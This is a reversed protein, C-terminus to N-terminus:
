KVERIHSNFDCMEASKDDRWQLFRPHRLSGKKKDIIGNALVEFVRKEKIYKDANKKLDEMIEETLGKCDGVRILEGDKYVGFTIGGCWGKFYPKSVPDCTMLTFEDAVEGEPIDFLSDSEPHYWYKWEELKGETLLKGEYEETPETLGMIVVDWTEMAKLKIFSKSRKQEYIAYMDKVIIGEKGEAVKEAFKTVYSECPTVHECLSEYISHNTNYSSWLGFITKSAQNHTYLKTFEMNCNAYRGWFKKLVKMLYIKRKWLPMAQINIGKYYLIDFAYFKIFGNIYQFQIANEPLAGMVSQVGMSDTGFDFEGDLVTGELEPLALDRIHPIQDSNESFWGTKKSVRRSFARNHEKGIYILGRHGDMKLEGIENPLLSDRDLYEKDDVASMPEIFRVLSTSRFEELYDEFKWGSFKPTLDESITLGIGEHVLKCNELAPIERYEHRKRKVIIRDMVGNTNTSVLKIENTSEL